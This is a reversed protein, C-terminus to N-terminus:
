KPFWKKELAVNIPLSVMQSAKVGVMMRFKSQRDTVPEWTGGPCPALSLKQPLLSGKGRTSCKWHSRYLLCEQCPLTQGQM